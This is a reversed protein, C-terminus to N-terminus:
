SKASIKAALEELKDGCLRELYAKAETVAGLKATLDIIQARLKTITEEAENLKASTTSVEEFLRDNQCRLEDCEGAIKDRADRLEQKEKDATEKIKMVKDHHKYVLAAWMQQTVQRCHINLDAPMEEPCAAAEALKDRYADIAKSYSENRHNPSFKRLESYSPIHGREIHFRRVDDVLQEEVTRNLKEETM